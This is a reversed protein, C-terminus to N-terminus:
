TTGNRDSAMMNWTSSGETLIIGGLALSSCDSVEAYKMKMAVLEKEMEAMQEEMHRNENQVEVNRQMVQEMGAKLREEVNKAESEAVKRLEAV